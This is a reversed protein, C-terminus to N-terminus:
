FIISYEPEKEEVPKRIGQSLTIISGTIPNVLRYSVIPVFNPGDPNEIWKGGTTLFEVILADDDAWMKILDAHHKEM